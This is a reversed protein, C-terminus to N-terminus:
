RADVGSRDKDATSGAASRDCHGHHAEEDVVLVRAGGRTNIMRKDVAESRRRTTPHRKRPLAEYFGAATVQGPAEALWVHTDLLGM